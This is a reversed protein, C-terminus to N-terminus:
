ASRYWSFEIANQAEKLEISSHLGALALGVVVSFAEQQGQLRLFSEHNFKATMGAVPRAGEVRLGLNKSLFKELGNLGALGGCLVAHDLIGAYSREPHLSRFYRLLRLFERSLKELEASVDLRYSGGVFDSTLTGSDSLTTKPHELICRATEIDVEAIAAISQVINEAGFKVGRIFQLHQNQVVYMQTHVGGIDIITLSADRWMVSEVNLKREIVRLIAQAELEARVPNWGAYQISEARSEVIQRPVAIVLSQAGDGLDSRAESVEICADEVDFQLHRKLKFRAVDRREAADLGPPLSLWRMTAASSPISFVVDANAIDNRRGVQKLFKGLKKPESIVAGSSFGSEIEVNIVSDIDIRDVVQELVVGKVSRSGFDLGMSVDIGLGTLTKRSERSLM